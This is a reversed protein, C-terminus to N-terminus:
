RSHKVAWREAYFSAFPVTGALLLGVTRMLGFRRTAAFHLAVLLYVAYLAGHTPGIIEVATPRDFGYKLPMAIFVLFLLMVGTAWAM